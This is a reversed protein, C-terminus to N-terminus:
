KSIFTTFSNLGLAYIGDFVVIVAGIIVSTAIVTLTQKALEQKSPWIVKMFEGKIDKLKDGLTKFATTKSSKDTKATKHHEAKVEAKPEAKTEANMEAQTDKQNEDKEAM